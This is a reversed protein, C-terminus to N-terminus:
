NEILLSLEQLTFERKAQQADFGELAAEELSKLRGFTYLPQVVKLNVKYFGGLNDFDDDEDPSDLVTGKAAPVVGTEVLLEAEPLYREARARRVAVEAKGVDHGAARVVHSSALTRELAEQLGVREGGEAAPSPRCALVNLLAALAAALAAPRSRM